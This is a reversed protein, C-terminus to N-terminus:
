ANGGELGQIEGPRPIDEPGESGEMNRAESTEIERRANAFDPRTAMAARIAHAAQEDMEKEQRARTISNPDPM